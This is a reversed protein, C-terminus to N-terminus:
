QNIKIKFTSKVELKGKGLQRTDHPSVTALNGGPAQPNVTFGTIRPNEFRAAWFHAGWMDTGPPVPNTVAAEPCKIRISETVGPTVYDDLEFGNLQASSPAFIPRLSNVVFKSKKTGTYTGTCKDAQIAAQTYNIKGSGTYYTSSTKTDYRIKLPISSTVALTITTGPGTIIVTSELELRLNCRATKKLVDDITASGYADKYRQAVIKSFASRPNKLAQAAFYADYDDKAVCNELNHKFNKEFQSSINKIANEMWELSQKKNAANRYRFDMEDLLSLTDSWGSLSQSRHIMDMYSSPILPALEDNLAASNQKAQSHKSSPPHKTANDKIASRTTKGTGAPGTRDQVSDWPKMVWDDSPPILAALKSKGTMAAADTKDFAGTFYFEDGDPHFEFTSLVETEAITTDPPPTITLVAPENLELGPPEIIAAGLLGGTLPAGEMGAVPTLTFIFTDNLAGSPITYTYKAGNTGTASLSGGEPGIEESVATSMPALGMSGLDNPDFNEPDFSEPDFNSFDMNEIDPVSLDVTVEVKLPNPEQPPTQVSVDLPAGDKGGTVPILRYSLRRDALAPFDEYATVNGALELFPAFKDGEVSIEIRYADASLNEWALEVSIPSTVKASFGGRSDTLAGPAAPKEPVPSDGAPPAGAAGNEQQPPSDKSLFAPLGCATSVFVFILVPFLLFRIKM